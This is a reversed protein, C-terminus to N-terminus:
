FLFDGAGLDTINVGRLLISNGDGTDILVNAGV